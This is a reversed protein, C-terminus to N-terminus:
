KYREDYAAQTIALFEAFGLQNLEELFDDWEADIDRVGIIFKAMNEKIYQTSATQYESYDTARDAAIGIPPLYKDVSYPAYDNTRANYLIKEQDFAGIEGAGGYMFSKMDVNDMEFSLVQNALLKNSPQAWPFNRQFIAKTGFVSLNGEPDDVPDWGNPGNRIAAWHEFNDHRSVLQLDAFRLAAIVNDSTSVVSYREKPYFPFYPTQQLGSPGKLPPLAKFESRAGEVGINVWPGLGGAPIAGLQNGKPNGTLAKAQPRQASVFEKDLLGEDYLRAIYKLGEPFGPQLISSTVTGNEVYRFGDSQLITFTFPNMLFGVIETRWATALAFLPVEDNPDGNGNADQDRFAVLVDFFDETTEPMDLGLNDLWATNIWMRQSNLCHECVTKRLFSYIGGDPATISQVATPDGAEIKQMNPLWEWYDKLDVFLGQGGYIARQESSINGADWFADPLNSQSALILNIKEQANAGTAVTEFNPKINTLEEFWNLLENDELIVWEEVTAFFDLTIKEKVIPFTGAPTLNSEEGATSGDQQGAGFATACAIVLVCLALLFKKM